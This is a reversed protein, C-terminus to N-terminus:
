DSAGSADLDFVLEPTPRRGADFVRAAFEERAVFVVAQRGGDGVILGQAYPLRSQEVLKALGALPTLDQAELEIRCLVQRCDVDRILETELEHPEFMASIYNGVNRSWEDDRQESAWCRELAGFSAGGDDVCTLAAAADVAARAPAAPDGPDTVEHNWSLRGLDPGRSGFRATSAPRPARASAPIGATLPQTQVTTRDSNCYAVGGVVAAAAVVLAGSSSWALGPFRRGGISPRPRTRAARLSPV